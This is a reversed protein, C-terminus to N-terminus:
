QLRVVPEYHNNNAHNLFLTYRLQSLPSYLAENPAFHVWRQVHRRDEWVTSYTYIDAHLMSALALLEVESSWVGITRMRSTAIYDHPVNFLTAYQEIYNCVLHRLYLHQEASGTLLYSVSRFLCNGDGDVRVV